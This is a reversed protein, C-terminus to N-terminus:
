APLGQEDDLSRRSIPLLGVNVGCVLLLPNTAIRMCITMWGAYYLVSILSVFVVHKFYIIM